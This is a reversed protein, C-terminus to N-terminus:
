AFRNYVRALLYGAAGGVVLGYILGLFAGTLSVSYGPFFQSLLGLHEGTWAGGRLALVFTALFLGGGCLVGIGLGSARASLRLVTQELIQEEDPPLKTM